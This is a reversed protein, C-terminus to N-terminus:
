FWQLLGVALQIKITWWNTTKWPFSKVSCSTRRPLRYTVIIRELRHPRRRPHISFAITQWSSMTNAWIIHIQIIKYQNMQVRNRMPQRNSTIANRYWQINNQMQHQNQNLKIHRRPHVQHRPKTMQLRDFLSRFVFIMFWFDYYYLLFFFFLFCHIKIRWNLLKNNYNRKMRSRQQIWSYIMKWQSVNFGSVLRTRIVPIYISNQRHYLVAIRHRRAISNILKIHLWALLRFILKNSPNTSLPDCQLICCLNANEGICLVSHSVVFQNHQLKEAECNFWVSMSSSQKNAM